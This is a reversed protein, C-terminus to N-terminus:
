CGVILRLSIVIFEILLNGKVGISPHDKDRYSVNLELLKAVEDLDYKSKKRAIVEKAEKQDFEFEANDTKFIITNM